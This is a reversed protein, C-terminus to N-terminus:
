NEKSSDAGLVSPGNRQFFNAIMEKVHCLLHMDPWPPPPCLNAQPTTHQSGQKPEQKLPIKKATTNCKQLGRPLKRADKQMATPFHSAVSDSNWISQSSWSCHSFPAASVRLRFNPVSFDECDQPASGNNKPLLRVKSKNRYHLGHIAKDWYASLVLVLLHTLLTKDPRAPLHSCVKGLCNRSKSKRQKSLGM